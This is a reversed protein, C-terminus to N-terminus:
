LATPGSFLVGVLGSVSMFSVVVFLTSSLIVYWDLMQSFEAVM